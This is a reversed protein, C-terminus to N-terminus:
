GSASCSSFVSYKSGNPGWTRSAFEYTTPGSPPPVTLSWWGEWTIGLVWGTTGNSNTVMFNIVEHTPLGTTSVVNGDIQCTAPERNSNGNNGGKAAFTTGVILGFALLVILSAEAAAGALRPITQRRPPIGDADPVWRTGNWYAM